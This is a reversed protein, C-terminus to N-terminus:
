FHIQTVLFKFQKFDIIDIKIIANLLIFINCM